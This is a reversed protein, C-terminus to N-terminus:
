LEKLAAEYEQPDNINRFFRNLDGFEKLEAEGLTQTRIKGFLSDVKRIGNKLLDEIAPMTRHSYLGVLPEYFNGIKPVLCDMNDTWHEFLFFFYASTVFPTDCATVLLPEGESIALGTFIGALPGSNPIFDKHLPLNLFEYLEPKNTIIRIDDAVPRLQHLIREILTTGGFKLLAKPQGMRTSSGGALIVASRNNTESAM